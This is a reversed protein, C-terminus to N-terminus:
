CFAPCDHLTWVAILCCCCVDIGSWPEDVDFLIRAFVCLLMANAGYCLDLLVYDM